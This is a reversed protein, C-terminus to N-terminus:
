VWCGRVQEAGHRVFVHDLSGRDKYILDSSFTWVAKLQYFLFLLESKSYLSGAQALLWQEQAADPGRWRVTMGRLSELASKLSDPYKGCSWKDSARREEIYLWQESCTEAKWSPPHCFFCPQLVYDCECWYICVHTCRRETHTQNHTDGMAASPGKREWRPAASDSLWTNQSHWEATCGAARRLSRHRSRWRSRRWLSTDARDSGAATGGAPGRPWPLHTCRACTTSLWITSQWIHFHSRPQTNAHLSHLIHGWFLLVLIIFVWHLQLQLELTTKQGLLLLLLLLSFSRQKYFLFLLLYLSRHQLLPEWSIHCKYALLWM